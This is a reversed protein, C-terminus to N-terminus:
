TNTLKNKTQKNILGILISLMNFNICRLATKQTYMFVYHKMPM